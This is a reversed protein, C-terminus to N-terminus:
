SPICCVTVCVCVHTCLSLLLTRGIGVTPRSSLILRYSDEGGDDCKWRLEGDGCRWLSVVM